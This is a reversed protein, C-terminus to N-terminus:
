EGQPCVFEKDTKADYKKIGIFVIDNQLRTNLFSLLQEKCDEAKKHKDGLVSSNSGYHIVARYYYKSM